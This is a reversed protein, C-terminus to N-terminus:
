AHVNTGFDSVTKQRLRQNAINIYDKNTEFAYYDFGNLKASVCESGSGAFPIVIVGDKPCFHKVIRHCIQLPKQTPHNVKEKEFRKGALTPINWVDGAKKGEPNPTWTKGEKTIKHKLREVSKYPVRIPKYYPKEGKSFWLIPEYETVLTNEQRSMGNEYHWIIQRQYNLGIEYLYDHLYCLYKHSGYVFISGNDKLIRKCEDLWVKCWYIYEFIKMDKFKGINYPPDAIILDTSSSGLEKLGKLCDMQHIKNKYLM